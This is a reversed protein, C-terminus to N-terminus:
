RMQHFGLDHLAHDLGLAHNHEAHGPHVVFTFHLDVATEAHLHVRGDAGVLSADTEVGTYVQADHLEQCKLLRELVSQCGQRHTTGFATAVEVRTAFGVCLHHTEALREHGFQLAM